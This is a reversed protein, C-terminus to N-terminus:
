RLSFKKLYEILDGLRDQNQISNKEADYRLAYFIESGEQILSLPFNGARGLSLLYEQPTVNRPRSNADGGLTRAFEHYLALFKRHRSIWRWRVPNSKQRRKLRLYFAIAALNLSLIVGAAIWVLPFRINKLFRKVVRSSIAREIVPPILRGSKTKIYEFLKGALATQLRNNYGLVFEEWKESLAAAVDSIKKFYIRSAYITMPAPPTPDFRTWGLHEDYMEVWAHADRQRIIHKNESQNFEGGHFGVALRCPIHQTRLMCIMATAFLECHGAKYTFLFDEVPRDSRLAGVRLTYRYENVLFSEICRAKEFSTTARATVSAALESIKKVNMAAPMQLLSENINDAESDSLPERRFGAFSYAVYQKLNQPPLLFCTESKDKYIYGGMENDAVGLMALSPLAFVYRSPYDLYAIEQRILPQQMPIEPILKINQATADLPYLKYARADQSKLWALGTFLDFSGGRLYLESESIKLGSIKVSMVPTADQTMDHLSGLNIGTSFGTYLKQRESDYSGTFPSSYMNPNIRPIIVFIASTLLVALFSAFMTSRRSARLFEPSNITAPEYQTHLPIILSLKKKYDAGVHEMYELDRHIGLWFLTYISSILFLLLLVPFFPNRTFIAAILVMLFAYLWMWLIDRPRKPNFAKSIQLFGLQYAFIVHTPKLRLLLIGLTFFLFLIAAVNWSRTYGAFPERKLVMFWSPILVIIFLGVAIPSYDPILVASLFGLVAITYIARKLPAIEM